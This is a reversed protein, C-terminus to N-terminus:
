DKQCYLVAVNKPRTENATRPTGNTGDTIPDGILNSTDTGVSFRPANYSGSGVYASMLANHKHGQFADEQTNGAARISDNTGTSDIGRLFRGRAPTYESWGSPCSALNFASIAGTPMGSGGGIGGSGGLLAGQFWSHYVQGSMVTGAGATVQATVYDTTGNMDLIATVPAMQNTGYGHGMNQTFGNKLIATTCYSSSPNCYANLSFVYKGAVTPTFRDNTLNFSNTTDFAKTTWDINATTNATLTQDTGNRNVSFAVQSGAMSALSIGNISTASINTASIQNSVLNPIYSATSALYGWTVGGTTLSVNNTVLGSPTNLTGTPSITPAYTPCGIDGRDAEGICVRSSSIGMTSSITALAGWDQAMVVPTFAVSLIIVFLHRLM